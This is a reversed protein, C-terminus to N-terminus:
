TRSADKEFGEMTQAYGNQLLLAKLAAVAADFAQDNTEFTFKNKMESADIQAYGAFVRM